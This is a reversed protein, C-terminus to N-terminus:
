EESGRQYEVGAKKFFQPLLNSAREIPGAVLKAPLLGVFTFFAIPDKTLNPAKGTSM